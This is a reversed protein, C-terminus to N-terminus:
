VARIVVVIDIVVIIFTSVLFFAVVFVIEFLHELVLKAVDVFIAVKHVNVMLLFFFLLLFLRSRSDFNVKAVFFVFGLLLFFFLLFFLLQRQVHLQIQLRICLLQFLSFCFFYFLFSGWCRTRTDVGRQDDTAASQVHVATHNLVSIALDRQVIAPRQIELAQVFPLQQQWTRHGFLYPLTFHALSLLGRIPVVIILTVFIVVIVKIAM